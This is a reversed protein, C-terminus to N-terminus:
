VARIVGQELNYHMKIQLGTISNLWGLRLQLGNCIRDSLQGYIPPLPSERLKRIQRFTLSEFELPAILVRRM